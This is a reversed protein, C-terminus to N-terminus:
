WKGVLEWQHTFVYPLRELFSWYINHALEHSLIIMKSSKRKIDWSPYITMTADATVFSDTASHHLGKYEDKLLQHIFVASIQLPLMEPPFHELTNIIIDLEDSNWPRMQHKTIYSADFKYKQLIYLIQPGEKLGFVDKMACLVSKCQSPAKLKDGIVTLVKLNEEKNSAKEKRDRTNTLVKFYYILSRSEKKFTFGHVKKSSVIQQDIKSLRIIENEINIKSVKQECIYELTVDDRDVSLPKRKYEFESYSFLPFILIILLILRSMGWGRTAIASTNM